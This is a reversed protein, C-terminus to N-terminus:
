ILAANYLAPEPLPANIDFQSGYLVQRINANNAVDAPNIINGSSYSTFDIINPLKDFVGEEVVL